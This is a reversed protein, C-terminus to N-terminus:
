WWSTLRYGATWVGFAYSAVGVLSATVIYMYALSEAGFRSLFLTDGVTRSVLAGSAVCMFGISTLLLKARAKADDGAFKMMM